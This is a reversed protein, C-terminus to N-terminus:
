AAETEGIGGAALQKREQARKRLASARVAKVSHEPLQPLGAPTMFEGLEQAAAELARAGILLREGPPTWGLNLLLEATNGGIHLVGDTGLSGAFLDLEIRVIPLGETPGTRTTPTIEISTLHDLLIPGHNSM